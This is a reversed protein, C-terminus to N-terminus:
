NLLRSLANETINMLKALEKQTPKRPLDRKVNEKEIIRSYIKFIHRMYSKKLDTLPKRTSLEKLEKRNQPDQLYLRLADDYIVLADKSAPIVSAERHESNLRKMEEDGFVVWRRLFNNLERINSEKWNQRSIRASNEHGTHKEQFLKIDCPTLKRTKGEHFITTWTYRELLVFAIKSITGPSHQEVECLPHIEVDLQSIRSKLDPRIGTASNLREPQAAAIIRVDAYCNEVGGLPRYEGNELFRLLKAQIRPSMDPLEDLFLTGGVATALLGPSDVQAQNHSGKMYGFMESELLEDPLGACNITVFPKDRRISFEHIAWAVAEKGSGSDGKILVNFDTAAIKNLRSRLLDISNQQGNAECSYSGGAMDPEGLEFYRIARNYERSIAGDEVAQGLILQRTIGGLQDVRSIIAIMLRYQIWVRTLETHDYSEFNNKAKQQLPTTDRDTDLTLRRGEFINASFTCGTQKCWQVLHQFCKHSALMVQSCKLSTDEIVLRVEELHEESLWNVSILFLDKDFSTRSIIELRKALTSARIHEVKGLQLDESKDFILKAYSVSAERSDVLIHLKPQSIKM